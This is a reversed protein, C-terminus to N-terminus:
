VFARKGAEGGDLATLSQRVPSDVKGKELSTVGRASPM